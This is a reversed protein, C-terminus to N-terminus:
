SGYVGDLGWNGQQLELHHYCRGERDRRLCHGLVSVSSAPQCAIFVYDTSVVSVPRLEQAAIGFAGINQFGLYPLM